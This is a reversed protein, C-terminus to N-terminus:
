RHQHERIIDEAALVADIQPIGTAQGPRAAESIEAVIHVLSSQGVIIIRDDIVLEFWASPTVLHHSITEPHNNLGFYICEVAIDRAPDDPHLHLFCEHIM